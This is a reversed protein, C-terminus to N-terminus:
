IYREIVSFSHLICLLSEDGLWVSILLLHLWHFVAHLILFHVYKPLYKKQTQNFSVKLTKMLQKNNNNKYQHIPHTSSSLVKETPNIEACLGHHLGYYDTFQRTEPLVIWIVSEVCYGSWRFIKDHTSWTSCVEAFARLLDGLVYQSAGSQPSSLAVSCILHFSLNCGWDVHESLTSLSTMYSVLFRSQIKVAQQMYLVNILLSIAAWSCHKLLFVNWSFYQLFPM